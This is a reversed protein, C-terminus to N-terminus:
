DLHAEAISRLGAAVADIRDTPRKGETASQSELKGMWYVLQQLQYCERQRDLAPPLSRETEYGTQLGDRSMPRNDPYEPLARWAFGALMNEVIALDYAPPVAFLSGWDVVAEVTGNDPDDLINHWGHDVRGLM